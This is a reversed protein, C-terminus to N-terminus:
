QNLLKNELLYILMAARAQAETEYGGDPNQFKIPNRYSCHWKGLEALHSDESHCFTSFMMKFGYAEYKFKSLIEGLESSTYAAYYKIAGGDQVKGTQKVSTLNARPKIGEYGIHPIRNDIHYFLSESDLGLEKLRKAQELTCVQDKLEM